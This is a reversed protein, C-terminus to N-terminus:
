TGFRLACSGLLDTGQNQERRHLFSRQSRLDHAPQGLTLKCKKEWKPVAGGVFPITPKQKLDTMHPLGFTPTSQGLATVVQQVQRHSNTTLRSFGTVQQSTM